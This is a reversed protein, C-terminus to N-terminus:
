ADVNPTGLYCKQERDWTGNVLGENLLQQKQVKGSPTYPLTTRIEMYRPIMFRPMVEALQEALMEAAIAIGEKLVVVVRLDDEGAAAPHAVAACAAVAPHQSVFREVDWSSINQGRRRIREKFRDIFHLYGDASLTAMDGTHLWLNRWSELTAEPKMLYGQSGIYPISPRLVIEGPVGADVARDADDVIRIEWGADVRGATGPRRDPFRNYVSIPAEVLGYGEVIVPGFREEFEPDYRANWMVRVRHARDHPSEALAKLVAPVTFMTHSVTAGCETVDRWFSTASFRRPITQQAGALMTALLGGAMAVGYFLPFPAFLHDRDMLGFIRTTTRATYFIGANASLVGKSPGTTGSSYSVTNIDRFDARLVPDAGDSRLFDEYAVYRAPGPPLELDEIGGVVVVVQLRSLRERSLSSLSSIFSREVILLRCDSESLPLELLHGRYDTNIPLFIARRLGAAFYSAVMEIRNRLLVCVYQGVEVKEAALGKAAKLALTAVAEYSYSGGEAFHIFPRGGDRDSARLLLQAPLWEEQPLSDLESPFM